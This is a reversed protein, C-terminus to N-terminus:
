RDGPAVNAPLECGYATTAVDPMPPLATGDRLAVLAQDAFASARDTCFRSLNYNGRFWLTGDGAIVVAQPTSYVGCAAAIRGDPDFVAPMGLEAAPFGAAAAAPSDAQLVAVFDVAERHDRLLTRLHDLNFRSCPCEANFFHLLVPRGRGIHAPLTAPLDLRSGLPVIALGRPEPTPLSYRLDDHWFRVATTAMALAAIALVVVTRWSSPKAATLHM